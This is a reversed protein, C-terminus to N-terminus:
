AADSLLPALRERLPALQAEYHRWAGIGRTNIPQRVQSTSATLVPMKNKTIDVQEVQFPLGCFEMVQRGIREPDSVLDEYGVEMYRGPLTKRWHASLQDFRLYYDALEDLAYSYGFANNMFLNKLNSFCADLPNRRMCLIKAQPLARAMFGSYIFNLPNKDVHFRKDGRRSATRQLYGEGVKRWDVDQVRDLFATQLFDGIFQDTEWSLMDSFDSLEGLSALGPSAGVIRELLTTGTRPMGVIFIPVPLEAAVEAGASSAVPPTMAILREFGDQEQQSSYRLHKRKIAAGAALHDWAQARDGADDFEKFLAYHLQPQHQSDNAFAKQARQLRPVRARPPTSKEHFALAYHADFNRPNLQLCREYEATAEAMRGAYQLARARTFSLADSPQVRPLVREDILRIAEPVGGVLTLYKALTPANRVVEPATWDASGILDKVLERENFQMLLTTVALLDALRAGRVAEACILAHQRALRYHGQTQAIACLRIRVYLRKPDQALLNDYIAQAAPVDGANELQRAERWKRDFEPDM